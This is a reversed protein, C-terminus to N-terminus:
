IGVEGTLCAERVAQSLKGLHIRHFLCGWPLGQSLCVAWVTRESACLACIGPCLSQSPVCETGACFKNQGRFVHQMTAEPVPSVDWMATTTSGLMSLFAM